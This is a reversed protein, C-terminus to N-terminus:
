RTATARCASSIASMAAVFMALQGTPRGNATAGFIDSTVISTIRAPRDMPALSGARSAASRATM